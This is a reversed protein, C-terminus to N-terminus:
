IRRMFRGGEVRQVNGHLELELLRPLLRVGSVGTAMALEDLDYAHGTQMGALLPDRSIASRDGSAEGSGASATPGTWGIEEVIDDASEVIKAGDRILAHAGRNRGSLVSGPVAMVDRGQELACAATILSGSKENAEVVVVARSLGSILRNRMPFHFALPPTGPPYESVVLGNRVIHEALPTHERPYICDIGSGLVAITRGSRLAGRHAASDVGRALGSVVAIGRAAVECGLQAATELAGPSAARSGVIAIAPTGFVDLAGRYWLAPPADSIALLASPFRPDNWAVAGIGASEVSQRVSRSQDLLRRADELLCPDDCRLRETLGVRSLGPVLSLAIAEDRTM